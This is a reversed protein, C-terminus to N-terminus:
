ARTARTRARVSRTRGSRARKTLRRRPAADDTIRAIMAVSNWAGFMARSRHAAVHEDADGATRDTQEDTAQQGPHDSPVPYKPDVERDARECEPEHAAMQLGLRATRAFTRDVHEARHEDGARRHEDNVAQELRRMPHARRGCADREADREDKDHHEEGDLAARSGAAGAACAAIRLRTTVLMTRPNMAIASAVADEEDRREVHRVRQVETRQADAEREQRLRQGDGRQRQAPAYRTRRKPAHAHEDGTERDGRDCDADHRREGDVRRVKERARM